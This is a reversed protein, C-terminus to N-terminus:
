RQTDELVNQLGVAFRKFTGELLTQIMKEMERAEKKHKSEGMPQLPPLPTSSPLTSADIDANNVAKPPGQPEAPASIVADDTFAGSGGGEDPKSGNAKKIPVLDSFFDDMFNRAKRWPDLVSRGLFYLVKRFEKGQFWCSHGERLTDFHQLLAFGHFSRRPIYAV